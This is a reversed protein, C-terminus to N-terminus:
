QHDATLDGVTWQRKQPGGCLGHRRPSGPYRRRFRRHVYLGEALPTQLVLSGSVTKVIAEALNSEMIRVRGSVSNTGLEGTLAKAKIAGSVAGIKLLGSIESLNLGGSVTSIDIEGQLGRASIDCNVGSTRLNCNKPVLVGYDVKCPKNLGFWNTVPQQYDTKVVVRGDTDQEIIVETQDANGSNLYKIATVAIVGDEGARIKVSGRINGLKLKAPSEVEFTREITEQPMTEGEKSICLTWWVAAVRLMAVLIVLWSVL